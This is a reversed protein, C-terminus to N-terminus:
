RVGEKENLKKALTEISNITSSLMGIICTTFTCDLKALLICKLRNAPKLVVSCTNAESLTFIYEDWIKHNMLNLVIPDFENTNMIDDMVKMVKDNILEDFSGINTEDIYNNTMLKVLYSNLEEVRKTAIDNLKKMREKEM